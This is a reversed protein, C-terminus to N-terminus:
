PGCVKRTRALSLAPLVSGESATREQVTSVAGGIAALGDRGRPAGTTSRATPLLSVIPRKRRPMVAFASRAPAKLDLNVIPRRSALFSLIAAALVSNAVPLAVSPAAPATFILGLSVRLAFRASRRTRLSRTAIEVVNVATDPSFTVVLSTTM